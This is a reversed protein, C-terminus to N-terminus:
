SFLKQILEESDNTLVKVDNLVKHTKRILLYTKKKLKNHDPGYGFNKISRLAKIGGANHVVPILEDNEFYFKGESIYFKRKSTTIVFNYKNKLKVFGEKDFLYDLAIQDPGYFNKDKIMEIIEKCIAKFKNCPGLFLGANIMKRKKLKNKIDKVYKKKFFKKIPIKNLVENLEDYCARFKNKNEYFLHSIDRQFIIDGGDASM